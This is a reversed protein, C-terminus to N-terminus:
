DENLVKLPQHMVGNENQLFTFYVTKAGSPYLVIRSIIMGRFKYNIGTAIKDKSGDDPDFTYVGRSYLAYNFQIYCSVDNRDNELKLFYSDEWEIGKAEFTLTKGLYKEPNDVINKLSIHVPSFDIQNLNSFEVLCPINLKGTVM